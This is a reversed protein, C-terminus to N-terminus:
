DRAAVINSQMNCTSAINAQHRCMHGKNTTISHLLHNKVLATTLGPITAPEESLNLAGLLTSAPPSCMIQHIYHAYEATSSTADVNAAFATIPPSIIPVHNPTAAPSTAQAGANKTLLVM